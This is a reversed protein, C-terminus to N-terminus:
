TTKFVQMQPAVIGKVPVGKSTLFKVNERVREINEQSDWVIKLTQNEIIWADMVWLTLPYSMKSM